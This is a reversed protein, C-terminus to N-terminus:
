TKLLGRTFSSLKVDILMQVLTGARGHSIEARENINKDINQQKQHLNRM